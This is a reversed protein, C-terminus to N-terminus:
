KCQISTNLQNSPPHRTSRRCLCIAFGVMCACIVLISSVAVLVFWTLELGLLTNTEQALSFILYFIILNEVILQYYKSQCLNVSAEDSGDACHNVGDCM